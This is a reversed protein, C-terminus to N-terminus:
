PLLLYSIYTGISYCQDSCRTCNDHLRIVVGSFFSDSMYGDWTSFNDRMAQSTHFQNHLSMFDSTHYLDERYIIWQDYKQDDGLYDYDSEVQQKYKDPLNHYYIFQRHHNNTYVKVDPM